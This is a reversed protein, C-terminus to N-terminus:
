IFKSLKRNLRMLAVILLLLVIQGAMDGSSYGIMLIWNIESDYLMSLTIGNLVSAIAAIVLCEKWSFDFVATNRSGHYTKVMRVAVYVVVLSAVPSLIALDISNGYVSTAWMLYSSPLLYLLGRWGLFYVALVRIGHPLFLVSFVIPLQPALIKQLPMVLGSTITYASIYGVSVVVFTLWDLNLKRLM